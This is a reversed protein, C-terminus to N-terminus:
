VGCPLYGLETVVADLRRDHLEMPVVDVQQQAFAIGVVFPRRGQGRAAAADLEGLFTDYYGKGWGLRGGRRDFALLPALVLVPTLVAATALPELTSFGAPRLEDGARWRRFEMCPGVFAPLALDAGAAALAQALPRPDAESRMPWYLSVVAGAARERLAAAGHASLRHSWAEREGAPVADRMARLRARLEAKSEAGGAM